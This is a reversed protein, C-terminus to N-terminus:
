LRITPFATGSLLAPGSLTKPDPRASANAETWFVSGTNPPDAASVTLPLVSSPAASEGDCSPNVSGFWHPTVLSDHVPPHPVDGPEASLQGNPVVRTLTDALLLPTANELAASM